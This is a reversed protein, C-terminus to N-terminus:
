TIEQGSKKAIRVRKGDKHEIGIRTREGTKPDAVMVNSAHIPMSKEVVQGKVDGRGRKHKKVINVGAVVVRNEDRLVDTVEGTKGRDKGAIVLVKDGKKLKM